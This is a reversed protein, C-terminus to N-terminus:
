PQVRALINHNVKCVTVQDKFGTFTHLPLCYQQWDQIVPPLSSIPATRSTYIALYDNREVQDVTNLEEIPTYQQNFLEAMYSETGIVANPSLDKNIYAASNGLSDGYGSMFRINWTFISAALFFIVLIWVNALRKGRFWHAVEGALFVYLPILWLVMYHPSKLQSAVAFIAAGATWSIVVTDYATAKRKILAQIYRWAVLPWGLVIAIVTTIYIWYRDAIVSIVESLGFNLGRASTIGFLREFEVVQAQIYLQGFSFYMVAVYAVVVVGMTMLSILYGKSYRRTLLWNALVVLVLFVGIHKFIFAFGLVLGTLVWRYLKKDGSKVASWFLWIGIVILILQINELYDMRNITIVWGDLAIFFTALLATGKGKKLVFLFVLLLVILSAAANLFRAGIITIGNTLEFWAATLQYGFLPHFLYPQRLADLVPKVSPYGYLVLSKAVAFNVPEDVELATKEINYFRLFGGFVFIPILILAIFFASTSKKPSM